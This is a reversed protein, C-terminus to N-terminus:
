RTCTVPRPQTPDQEGSNGTIPAEGPIYIECTLLPGRQHPMGGPAWSETPTYGPTPPTYRLRAVVRDRPGLQLDKQWDGAAEPLPHRETVPRGGDPTVTLEAMVSGHMAWAFTLFALGRLM